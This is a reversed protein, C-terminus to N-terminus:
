LSVAFVDIIQTLTELANKVSMISSEGASVAFDLLERNGRLTSM